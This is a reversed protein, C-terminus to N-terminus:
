SATSEKHLKLTKVTGGYNDPEDSGKILAKSESIVVKGKFTIILRPRLKSHASPLIENFSYPSSAQHYEM